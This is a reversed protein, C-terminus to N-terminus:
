LVAQIGQKNDWRYSEGTAKDRVEFEVSSNISSYLRFFESLVTAFLFMEGESPFYSSNMTLLVHLARVPYGRFIKDVPKMSIDEIGALRQQSSRLAQQDVQSQFDYASLLSRLVSVNILSTYNLSMNSILQWHLRNDVRPSVSPTPKTINTLEAVSTSRHTAINIDYIALREALTGNSCTLKLLVSESSLSAENKHSYFSIYNELRRGCISEEVRTKYYKNKDNIAHHEFTEFPIYSSKSRSQTDWSTVEDVSYVEFHEQNSSQPRVRYETRKKDFRIPDGDMEFLNVAPSCHLKFHKDKVKVEAPFPRSFKFTIKFTKNQPYERIWGLNHIDFFLFKEPLSFYEQLLRYGSFCNASYPLLGDNSKLGVPQIATIDLTKVTDGVTVEIAELYRFLWFYIQRTIHREGNIFLRLTELNIASLEVNKDCGFLLELTASNRSNHQAVSNLTLPHLDVDYCTEFVCHTDEVLASQVQCGSEVTTKETISGTNPTMEVICMSPVSRLYHPWLLNMLTETVQPLDNDITQRLRGTLFAFGELLREVDPDRSSESLFHSLQPHHKAFEEGSEHLYSLEDQFYKNSKM